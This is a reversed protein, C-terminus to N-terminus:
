WNRPRRESLSTRNLTIHVSSRWQWTRNLLTRPSINQVDWILTSSLWILFSYLPYVWQQLTGAVKEMYKKMKTVKHTHQRTIKHKNRVAFISFKFKTGYCKSIAANNILYLASTLAVSRQCKVGNCSAACFPLVCSQAKNTLVTKVTKNKPDQWRARLKWYYQKGWTYTSITKNLTNWSACPPSGVM